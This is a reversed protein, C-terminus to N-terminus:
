FRPNVINNDVSGFTYTFGVSVSYRYSTALQQRQLLVEERSADEKPLYIQDRVLEASGNLDLTFGEFLNLELDASFELRNRSFDYFYHFGELRTTIEGWPREFALVASLSETFRLESTRDFITEEFYDYYRLGTRYFFVFRRQASEEYPFVNYELAPDVRVVAEHNFFTATNAWVRGGVSWHDSLSRVVRGRTAYNYQTSEVTTSSDVEFAEFRYGGNTSLNIKWGRTVRDASLRGNFDYVNRRQQSRLDFDTNVRFVWYNWPDEEEPAPPAGAAPAEAEYSVDIDEFSATRQVYPLLGAQLVRALGQRVDDETASQRANYILVNRQGDFPGQGIFTLEFQTGGSGTEQSTFFVHVGADQRVRVYSVYPLRRRFYDFDCFRNSCDIFVRLREGRTGLQQARTPGALVAMLLAFAAGAFLIQHLPQKM